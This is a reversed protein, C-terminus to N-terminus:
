DRPSPSTYLLCDNNTVELIREENMTINFNDNQAFLKIIEIRVEAYDEKSVNKITYWFSELINTEEPSTYLISTSDTSIKARDFDPPFISIIKPENTEAYLDNDLVKLESDENIYFLYADDLARLSTVTFVVSDIDFFGTADNATFLLKMSGPLDLVTREFSAVHTMSNVTTEM